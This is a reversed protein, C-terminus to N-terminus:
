FRVSCDSVYIAGSIIVDSLAIVSWVISVTGLFVFRLILFSQFDSDSIGDSDQGFEILFEIM